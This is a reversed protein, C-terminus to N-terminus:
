SSASLVERAGISFPLARRALISIANHRALVAGLTNFISSLAASVTVKTRTSLRLAIASFASHAEDGWQGYSDVALPVCVWHLEACKPDNEVHKKVEAPTVADNVGARSLIHKTLPSVVTIDFAGSKGLKWDPVLVDAPRTRDAEFSGQEKQPSMGAAALLSFLSDRLRNHRTTRYDGRGCTLSHHGLSDLEKACDPCTDAPAALPLGLRHQLAVQMQDATLTLDLPGRCPMALLWASSRPAGLSCLRVEDTRSCDKLLSKVGLSDIRASLERQGPPKFMLGALPDAGLAGLLQTNLMGVAESLHATVTDPLAAIHSTVFAAACHEAVSRLGLGGRSLSLRCQAWARDSLQLAALSAFAERTEEDCRVLAQRVLSPPTTRALYVFKSFSACTRLLHLAAQPDGLEVIRGLLKKNADCLLRVRAACFDLGGIPSGLIQFVPQFERNNLQAPFSVTRDQEAFYFTRLFNDPEPTFLECKALNLHLGLPPGDTQLIALARLVDVCPGALIGDDLYWKHLDLRPCAEVLRRVVINLVLCFLLPGLPDGQQVGVCSRINGTPHILLPSDGYCWQVWPLLEPFQEQTQELLATRDIANFANAFDVKLIVFDPDTWKREVVERTLHIISEAGAPCAVGAQQKGLAARFRVQNLKCVCKATIRRFVNGAAIPRIDSEGKALATLKAGALFPRVSQHAKGSLLLNIVRKLTSLLPRSLNARTADVLHQVRFNTGDSGVDRSFSALVSQLNFDAGLALPAADGDIPVVVAPPAAAPHKQLLKEQTQACDPALGSSSLTACAKGLRGHRVHTIAAEAARKLDVAVVRPKSNLTKTARRWLWALEGRSWADCLYTVSLRDGRNRKGGRRSAVLVCKPLILLRTWAEETNDLAVALLALELVQGWAQQCGTPVSALTPVPFSFIDELSPLVDAGDLAPEKIEDLDPVALRQRDCARKHTKMGASKFFRACHSCPEYGLELAAASNVLRPLFLGTVHGNLHVVLERVSTFSTNCNGCPYLGAVFSAASSASASSSSSSASSSASSLTRHPPPPARHTSVFTSSRSSSASDFPLSSLSSPPPSDSHNSDSDSSSSSSSSSSSFGSRPRSM